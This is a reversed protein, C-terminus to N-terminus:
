SAWHATRVKELSAWFLLARGSRAKEKGSRLKMWNEDATSRRSDLVYRLESKVGRGPNLDQVTEGTRLGSRTERREWKWGDDPEVTCRLPAHRTETSQVRLGRDVIDFWRGVPSVLLGSRLELEIEDWHKWSADAWQFEVLLLDRM